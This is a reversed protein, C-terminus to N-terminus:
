KLGLVYREAQSLLPIKEDIIVLGHRLNEVNNQWILVKLDKDLQADGDSDSQYGQKFTYYNRSFPAVLSLVVNGVSAFINILQLLAILNMNVYRGLTLICFILALTFYVASKILIIISPIIALSLKLQFARNYYPTTLSNLTCYFADINNNADVVTHNKLPKFTQKNFYRM